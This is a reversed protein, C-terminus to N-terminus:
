NDPNICPKSFMLKVSFLGFSAQLDCGRGTLSIYFYFKYETEKAHFVLSSVLIHFYLSNTLNLFVDKMNPM